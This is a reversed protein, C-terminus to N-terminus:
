AGVVGGVVAVSAGTVAWDTVEVVHGCAHQAEFELLPRCPGDAVDGISGPVRDGEVTPHRKGSREFLEAPALLIPPDSVRFPRCCLRLM